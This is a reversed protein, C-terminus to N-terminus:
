AIGPRTALTVAAEARGDPRFFREVSFAVIHQGTEEEYRAVLVSLALELDSTRQKVEFKQMAHDKFGDSAPRSIAPRVRM